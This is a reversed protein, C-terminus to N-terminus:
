FVLNSGPLFAPFPDAPNCQSPPAATQSSDAKVTPADTVAGGTTNNRWPEILHLSTRTGSTSDQTFTVTEISLLQDIPVMPSDLQVETGVQWLKGTPDLWGYVVIDADIRVGSWRAEKYARLDVEHQSKVPHEIPVLLPRFEPLIGPPVAKSRLESAAPGNQSDSPRTQGTRMVFSYMDEGNIVVQASYINEGEILVASMRPGHPGVLVLDGNKNNSLDVNRTRALREMFQWRTEGQQFHVGDPPNFPDGPITGIVEGLRVSTPQLVQVVIGILDGHFNGGGDGEEPLIDGTLEWAKGKGQLSVGHSNAEYGVQRVLIIGTLALIDALYIGCSDGPKFQLRDWLGPVPDREACTFRFYNYPDHWRHQVWVTEWDSYYQGAVYLTAVEQRKAGPFEPQTFTM